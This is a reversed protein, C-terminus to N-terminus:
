TALTLVSEWNLIAKFLTIESTQDLAEIDSNVGEPELAFKLKM